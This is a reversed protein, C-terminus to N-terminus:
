AAQRPMRRLLAVGAVGIPVYATLSFCHQLLGSFRMRDYDILGAVFLIMTAYALLNLFLFVKVGLADKVRLFTIPLLVPLLLMIASAALPAERPHPM